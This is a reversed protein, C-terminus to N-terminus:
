AMKTPGPVTSRPLTPWVGCIFHSGASSAVRQQHHQALLQAKPLFMLLHAMALAEELGYLQATMASAADGTNLLAYNAKCREKVEPYVSFYISAPISPSGCWMNATVM